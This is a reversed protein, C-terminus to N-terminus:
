RFSVMSLDEPGKKLLLFGLLGALFAFILNQWIMEFRIAKIGALGREWGGFFLLNAALSGALFVCWLVKTTKM